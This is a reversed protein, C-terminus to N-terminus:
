RLVDPLVHGLVSRNEMAFGLGSPAQTRDALVEWTGSPSGALDAAYLQLYAGNPIEIGQCPRLYNANAYVLPAPIFGDRVLRQTGYLDALILSLLRARQIVGREIKQWEEDSVVLPILDLQWPEDRGASAVFCSVGQERLLRQCNEARARLSEPGLDALAGTLTEWEVGAKPLPEMGTGLTSTQPEIVVSNVGAPDLAQAMPETM